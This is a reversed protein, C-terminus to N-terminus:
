LTIAGVFPAVNLVNEVPCLLPTDDAPDCQNLTADSEEAKSIYSRRPSKCHCNVGFLINPSSPPDCANLRDDAPSMSVTPSICAVANAPSPEPRVLTGPVPPRVVFSM